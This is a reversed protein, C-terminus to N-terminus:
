CHIEGLIFIKLESNRQFPIIIKVILLINKKSFSVWNGMYHMFPKNYCRFAMGPVYTLWLPIGGQAWEADIYPGIRVSSFSQLYNVLHVCYHTITHSLTHYHTHTHTHAPYHPFTSNQVISSYDMSKPKKWICYCIEVNQSTISEKEEKMFIGFSMLRSPTSDM